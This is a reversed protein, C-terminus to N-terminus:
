PTPPNYVAPLMFPWTRNKFAHLCAGHKANRTVPTLIQSRLQPLPSTFLAPFISSKQLAGTKVRDSNKLQLFSFSVIGPLLMKRELVLTSSPHTKRHQCQIAFLWFWPYLGTALLPQLFHFASSLQIFDPHTIGKTLLSQTLVAKWAIGSQEGERVHSPSFAGVSGKCRPKPGDPHGQRYLPLVHLSMSGTLQGHQLDILRKRTCSGWLAEGKGGASSGVTTHYSIHSGM